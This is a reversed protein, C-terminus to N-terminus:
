GPPRRRASRPSTVQRHSPGDGLLLFATPALLLSLGVGVAAVLGLARLAPNASMALLGFSLMTSACALLLSVLTPTPGAPHARSEVMFVGYDVGMSLVLLLATVHLLNAGVGLWGLCALATGASLVAPLFAALALRPDRYRALVLLLVAVLGVGILELTRRRLGRYAGELFTAQDFVRVGELGALREELRALRGGRLFTLIAVRGDALDVRFPAILPGLASARLDEFTLPPAAVRLSEAFPAFAEPVFGEAAFAARTRAALDGAGLAADRNARQWASSPLFPHLSRVRELEGADVAEALRRHVEDNRVLAGELDDGAAVVFRGGELRGVAARVAEDEARLAPDAPSLARIDDDWRLQAVGGIGVLVALLPLVALARPASRLAHLARGLGAALARHVRTPRPPDPLWPTVIWRTAALCVGVGVGTLVALERIGPFSTWALGLLGAVTTAAGLLLGPWIRRISAEPGAAEPALLHHSIAHAVYDVGVGILTAGFALSLGHVAGFALQTVALGAALGAALPVAGLALLRPSRFVLLFLVLVGAASLASIRQIDARVAAEAQVAFRHVASMRLELAPGHSAQVQAFAADLGSLLRRSAAGDFPSSRGGVFVVAAGAETVFGGDVTGLGPGVGAELRELHRPFLLLPDEPALPALLSGAPSRLRRRLDRARGRLAEPSRLERALAPPDESAFMWRRPYYLAYFTEELDARPGARVWSVEPHEALRTALARGAAVARQPTPAGEVLLIVLRSLESGAVERAVEALERDEDSPLFHTIATEVQLRPLALASVAGIAALGVLSWRRRRARAGM